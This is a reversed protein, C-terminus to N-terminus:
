TRSRARARRGAVYGAMKATDALLMTAPVAALAGVRAARHPPLLRMARRIKGSAYWGAAAGLALLAKRRKTVIALAAIGYVAFRLAHRAAHMGAVGDGRAYAYYQRWTSPLTPRVRWFAVASGVFDMRVGLERLRHNLYMDEGIDLWEPYGGARDFVERRFAISRSSPMFRGPNVEHEEPLSVAASCAEFFSRYIPRYFGMAVDAGDEIAALLHELWDPALTCDADSVAIVEHTAERVALNRGEAINAGPNEILTVDTAARLTELTGDRSGGDVIVVEDPARTQGRVSTLFEAVAPGGDKVTAILSVKM